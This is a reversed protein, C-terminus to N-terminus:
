FPNPSFLKKHCADNFTTNSALNLEEINFFYKDVNELLFDVDNSNLYSNM